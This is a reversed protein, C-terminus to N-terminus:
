YQFRMSGQVNDPLMTCSRRSEPVGGVCADAPEAESKSTGPTVLRGWYVDYPKVWAEDLEERFTPM